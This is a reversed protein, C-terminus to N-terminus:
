TIYYLLTSGTIHQHLPLPPVSWGSPQLNSDGRMLMCTTGLFPPKHGYTFHQSVLDVDAPKASSASSRIPQSRYTLGLGLVSVCVPAFSPRNPTSVSLGNPFINRLSYIKPTLTSSMISCQPVTTSKDTRRPSTYFTNM